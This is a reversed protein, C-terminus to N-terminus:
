AESVEDQPILLGSNRDVLYLNDADDYLKDAGQHDAEKKVILVDLGDVTKAPYGPLGAMQVAKASLEADVQTPSLPAGEDKPEDAEQEEADLPETTVLGLQEAETAPDIM